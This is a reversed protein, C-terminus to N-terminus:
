DFPAPCGTGPVKQMFSANDFGLLFGPNQKELWRSGNELFQIKLDKKPM